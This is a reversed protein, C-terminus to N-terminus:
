ENAAKLAELLTIELRRRDDSLRSIAERPRPLEVPLDRVIRGPRASFVLV